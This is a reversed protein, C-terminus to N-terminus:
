GETPTEAPKRDADWKRFATRLSKVDGSDIEWRSGKGPNPVDAAKVLQRLFKRVTKPDTGLKGALEKASIAAM